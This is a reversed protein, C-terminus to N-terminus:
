YKDKDKWTFQLKEEIEVHTSSPLRQHTMAQVLHNEWNIFVYGRKVNLGAHIDIVNSDYIIILMIVIWM